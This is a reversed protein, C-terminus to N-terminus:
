AMPITTSIAASTKTGKRSKTQGAKRQLLVLGYRANAATTRRGIQTKLFNLNSFVTHRVVFGSFFLFPPEPFFGLFFLQPTQTDAFVVYFLETNVIPRNEIGVPTVILTHLFCTYVKFFDCRIHCLGFYFRDLVKQIADFILLEILHQNLHVPKGQTDCKHFHLSIRGTFNGRIQTDRLFRNVPSQVPEFFFDLFNKLLPSFQANGRAVPHSSLVERGTKRQTAFVPNSKSFRIGM